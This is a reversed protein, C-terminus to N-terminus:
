ERSMTTMQALLRWCLVDWRRRGKERQRIIQRKWAEALTWAVRLTGWACHKCARPVIRLTSPSPSNGDDAVFGRIWSVVIGQDPRVAHPQKPVAGPWDVPRAPGRVLMDTLLIVLAGLCAVAQRTRQRAERHRRAVLLGARSSSGTRSVSSCTWAPRMCQVTPLCTCGQPSINGSNCGDKAAIKAKKTVSTQVFETGDRTSQSSTELPEKDAATEYNPWPRPSNPLVSASVILQPRHNSKPTTAADEVHSYLTVEIFSITIYAKFRLRSALKPRSNATSPLHPIPSLGSKHLYDKLHPHYECGLPYGVGSTRVTFWYVVYLESWRTERSCM